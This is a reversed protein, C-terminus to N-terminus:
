KDWENLVAQMEGITEEAFQTELLSKVALRGVASVSDIKQILNSAGRLVEVTDALEAQQSETGNKAGLEYARALANKMGHVSVEHFDLRDSKREELTSVGFCKKAVKFLAMAASTTLANWSTEDTLVDTKTTPNFDDPLLNM